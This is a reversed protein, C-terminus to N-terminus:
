QSPLVQRALALGQQAFPDGPAIAVARQFAALAESYRGTISLDKGLQLAAELRAPALRLAESDYQLAEASRGLASLAEGVYLQADAAFLPDSLAAQLHPLADSPRSADLLAAGCNFQAPLYAPDARIAAFYEALAEAQYRSPDRSQVAAASLAVALNTHARASEPAKAATDAWLALPSRYAHNRHATMLAFVLGAVAVPGWFWSPPRLRTASRLWVVAPIVICGLALYMRHEALPQTLVPFLSSSPALLIFFSAALFGAGGGRIVGWLAAAFGGTVLAAQWGAQRLTERIGEGYDFILPSPWAALRVYMAIAHCQTLLQAGLTGYGAWAVSGGRGKTSLVLAALPLWTAALFLYYGGRKRWAERFSGALFTRDYLLGLIPATAVTEKTGMGALCALISVGLWGRSVSGRILAYITLLYFMAAMSEARQIVYTVAETQLPHVAWLLSAAFAVPTAAGEDGRGALTRRVVGFLLLAASGHILCNFLHYSWVKEGSVAFNLALSLNLLPRGGVTGAREGPPFLVDRLTTGARLTPNEVIGPNDDFVFAGHFSGAYAAAVALVLLVAAWRATMRGEARQSFDVHM